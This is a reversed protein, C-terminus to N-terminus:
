YNLTIAYTSLNVLVLGKSSGDSVVLGDIGPSFQMSTPSTNADSTSSLNLLQPSFGGVVSWDFHYDRVTPRGGRYIVFGAWLGNFVCGTKDLDPDLQPVFPKAASSICAADASTALGITANGSDDKACDSVGDTGACSVELARSKLRRQLPDPNPLCAQLTNDNPDPQASINHRYHAASSLVVWELSARVDYSVATPFCCELLEALKAKQGPSGDLAEIEVKNPIAHLIRFERNRSLPADRASALGYVNRCTQYSAGPQGPDAGGCSAGLGRQWYTDTDPLLDALIEIHDAHSQAFADLSDVPVGFDNEGQLRAVRVDQVGARCFSQGGDSVSLVGKADIDIVGSASPNVTVGEFVASFNEEPLFVRPERFSLVLSSQDAAAPDIILPNDLNKASFLTTGVWVEAKDTASFDVGLMRPNFLGDTTRTTPLTRGTDSILTPFSRLSPAHNGFTVNNRLPATSRARNQQVVQCTVEDTVTPGVATEYTKFGGELPKDNACGRFNEDPGLNQTVPRRCPADFDQVDIVAIHGSQLAVFGFLGRLFSPAAGTTLDPAPRYQAGPDTPNLNPDPDCFQGIQQSGTAPDAEVHDRLAFTIDRAPSDFAIRDPPEFPLLKGHPRLLPTRCSRPDSAMCWRDTAGPRIDFFMVSGNDDADVAYLFRKVDTPPGGPPPVTLPSAAIRTTTVIRSPDKFSVPLLPAPKEKIACADATDLEHILPLESDAVFLRHENTTADEIQAFGAPRPSADTALPPHELGPPSGEDVPLDPPRVQQVPDMPLQSKDLRIQQEFTCPEYKGPDRDLLEQADIVVIEERDPLSVVLKRRGPHNTETSLDAPCHRAPQPTAESPPDGCKQRFLEPHEPDPPRDIVIAMEGPTTPLRCAPWTTLDKLPADDDRRLL